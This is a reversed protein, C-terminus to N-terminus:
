SLHLHSFTEEPVSEGPYDRFFPWLIATTTNIEYNIVPEISGIDILRCKTSLRAVILMFKNVQKDVTLTEEPPVFLAPSISKV